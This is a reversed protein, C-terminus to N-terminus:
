RWFNGNLEPIELVYTGTSKRETHDISGNYECDRYAEPVAHIYDRQMYFLNKSLEQDLAQPVVAGEEDIRYFHKVAGLVLVMTIYRPPFLNYDVLDTTEYTEDAVKEAAYETLTPFDANMAQNIDYIAKDLLPLTKATTLREGALEQNVLAVIASILM